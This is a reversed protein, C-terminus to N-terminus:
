ESVCLRTPLAGTSLSDRRFLASVSVSPNDLGPNDRIPSRVSKTARDVVYWSLGVYVLGIFVAAAILGIWLAKNRFTFAQRRM